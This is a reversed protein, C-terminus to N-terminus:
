YNTRKWKIRTLEVLNFGMEDLRRESLWLYKALQPMELKFDVIPTEM